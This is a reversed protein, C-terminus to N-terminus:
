NDKFGKGRTFNENAMINLWGVITWTWLLQEMNHNLLWIFHQIELLVGGEYISKM